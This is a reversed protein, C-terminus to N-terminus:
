NKIKFSYLICYSLVPLMELLTMVGQCLWVENCHYFVASSSFVGCLCLKEKMFLPKCTYQQDCAYSNLKNNKHLYLNWSTEHKPSIIKAYKINSVFYQSSLDDIFYFDAFLIFYSWKRVILFRIGIYKKKLKLGIMLFM